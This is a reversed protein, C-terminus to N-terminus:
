KSGGKLASIIKPGMFIALGAIGLLLFPWVAGGIAAIPQAITMDMLNEWTTPEEFQKQFNMPDSVIKTALNYFANHKAVLEKYKGYHYTLSEPTVPDIRAWSDIVAQAEEYLGNARDTLNQWMDFYTGSKIAALKQPIARSKSIMEAHMNEMERMLRRGEDETMAGMSFRLPPGLLSNNDMGEQAIFRKYFYNNYSGPYILDYAM